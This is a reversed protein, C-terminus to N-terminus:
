RKLDTAIAAFQDLAAWLDEICGYLHDSQRAGPRDLRFGGVAPRHEAPGPGRSNHAHFRLM